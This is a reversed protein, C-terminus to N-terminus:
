RFRRPQHRSTGRSKRRTEVGRHLKQFFKYAERGIEWPKFGISKMSNHFYDFTGQAFIIAQNIEDAQLNENLVRYKGTRGEATTWLPSNVHPTVRTARMTKTQLPVGAQTGYPIVYTGDETMRPGSNAAQATKAAMANYYAAQADDVKMQSQLRIAEMNARQKGMIGQSIARGAAAVGHRADGGGPAGPISSGQIPGGFSQTSPSTGGAGLAFLPHLGAAQADKVMRQYTADQRPFYVDKERQEARRRDKEFRRRQKKDMDITFQRGKSSQGGLFDRSIVGEILAAGAAIGAAGASDWSSAAQSVAM